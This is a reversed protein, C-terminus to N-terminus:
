KAKQLIQEITGALNFAEEPVEDYKGELIERVGKLTEALPVSEGPIATFSDAVCFPQTFFRHLRRARRGRRRRRKASKRTATRWRRLSM